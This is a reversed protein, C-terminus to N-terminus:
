RLYDIGKEGIKEDRQRDKIKDRMRRNDLWRLRELQGDMM